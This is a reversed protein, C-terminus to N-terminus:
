YGDLAPLLAYVVEEADRDLGPAFVSARSVETFGNRELVAIAAGNHAAVRAFLPRDPEHSVLIRLAETAIGRGRAHRTLWLTVERDEEVPFAVATGAFGGDETVVTFRVGDAARERQIWAEFEDRQDPHQATFAALEIAERDRLMEFIADLDDDDLERLEIHGVLGVSSM